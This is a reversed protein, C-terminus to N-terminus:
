VRLSALLPHRLEGNHLAEVYDEVTTDPSVQALALMAKGRYAIQVKRSYGWGDFVSFLRDQYDVDHTAATAVVYVHNLQYIHYAALDEVLSAPNTKLELANCCALTAPLSTYDMAEHRTFRRLQVVDTKKPM